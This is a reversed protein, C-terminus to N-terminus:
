GAYAVGSCAYRRVRVDRWHAARGICVVTDQKYICKSRDQGMLQKASPARNQSVACDHM